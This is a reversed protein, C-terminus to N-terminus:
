ILIRSKDSGGQIYDICHVTSNADCPVRKKTLNCIPIMDFVRAFNLVTPVKYTSVEEHCRLWVLLQYFVPVNGLFLFNNNEILIQLEFSYRAYRM